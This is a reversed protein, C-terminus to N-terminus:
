AFKMGGNHNIWVIITWVKDKGSWSVTRCASTPNGKKPCDATIPADGEHYVTVNKPNSGNPVADKYIQVVVPKFSGFDAGGNINLLVANSGETGYCMEGAPCPFGAADDQLTIPIGTKFAKFSTAFWNSADFHSNTAFSEANTTVFGGDFNPSTNATASATQTLCDGHSNDGNDVCQTSGLGTTEWSVSVTAPATADTSTPFAVIIRASQNARLAGFSCQVSIGLTCANPVLVYPDSASSGKVYAAAFTATTGQSFTADAYLQSINSPGGNSITAMFGADKGAKISEPVAVAGADQWNPAAALTAAPTALTTALLAFAISLTSLARSLRKRIM